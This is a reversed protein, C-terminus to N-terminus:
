KSKVNSLVLALKDAINPSGVLCSLIGNLTDSLQCKSKVNSLFLILLWEYFRTLVTNPSGVVPHTTVHNKQKSVKYKKEM